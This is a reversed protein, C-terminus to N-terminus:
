HIIQYQLYIRRGAMYQFNCLPQGAYRTMQHEVVLPSDANYEHHQEESLWIKNEGAEFDKLLRFQVLGGAM